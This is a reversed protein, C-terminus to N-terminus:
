RLKLKIEIFYKKFIIAVPPFNNSLKILEEITQKQTRKSKYEVNSWFM